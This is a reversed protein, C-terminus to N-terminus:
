GPPLVASPHRKLRLMPREVLHWSLWGLLYSGLVGVVFTIWPSGSPHSTIWLCEVPTGYLYIGYSIDPIHKMWALRLVGPQGVYFLLYAGATCVAAEIHSPAWAGIAVLILGAVGALALRFKIRARFLWFCAGIFFTSGLRAIQPPQGTIYYLSHWGEPPGTLAPFVFATFLALTCALWLLSREVLGLLGCAAVVLYCRFEYPITWLSGNLKHFVAGPYVPPTNIGGLMLVSIFFRSWVLRHFFHDVGPALIGVTITCVIAAAMYGPVIRLIRKRLYNLLKPDHQWSQVILFGSLLFFGDVGLAGFNFDARLLRHLLEQNEAGRTNEPAHALLVFTAFVIRLLDFTHNRQRAASTRRGASPETAAPLAISASTV